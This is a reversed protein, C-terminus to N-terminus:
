CLPRFPMQFQLLLSCLVPCISSPDSVPCSHPIPPKKWGWFLSISPSFLSFAAGLPGEEARMASLLFNMATGSVWHDEFSPSSGVLKSINSAQTVGRTERWQFLSLCRCSELEHTALQLYFLCMKEYFPMTRCLLIWWSQGKVFAGPHNAGRVRNLM